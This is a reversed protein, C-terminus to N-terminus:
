FARSLLSSFPRLSHYITFPKLFEFCTLSVSPIVSSCSSCRIVSISCAHVLNYHLIIGMLSASSTVDGSEGIQERMIEIIIQAVQKGDIMRLVRSVTPKSPIEQIGFNQAFFDAKNQIYVMVASLEDLGCLVACMLMVLIDQLRHKVYSQHRNDAIENFYKQM